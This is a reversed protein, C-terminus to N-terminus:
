DVTASRGSVPGTGNIVHAISGESRRGLRLAIM